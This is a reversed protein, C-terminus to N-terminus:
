WVRTIAIQRYYCVFGPFRSFTLSILSYGQEVESIMEQGEKPRKLERTLGSLYAINSTRSKAHVSIFPVM